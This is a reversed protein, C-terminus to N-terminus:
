PETGGVVGLPGFANQRIGLEDIPIFVRAIYRPHGRRCQHLLYAGEELGSSRVCDCRMLSLLYMLPVPIQERRSASLNISAPRTVQFPAGASSPVCTLGPSSTQM